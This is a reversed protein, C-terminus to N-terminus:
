VVGVDVSVRSHSGMITRITLMVKLLEEYQLLVKLLDEM